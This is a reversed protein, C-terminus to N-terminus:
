DLEPSNMRKFMPMQSWLIFVTAAKILRNQPLDQSNCKPTLIRIVLSFYYYDFSRPTFKENTNTSNNLNPLRLLAPLPLMSLLSSLQDM